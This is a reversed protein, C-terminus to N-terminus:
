KFKEKIYDHIKIFQDHNNSYMYMIKVDMASHSSLGKEGDTDIYTLNQLKMKIGVSNRFKDDKQLRLKDARANLLISLANVECDINEIAGKKMKYYLEVLLVEEELEWKM